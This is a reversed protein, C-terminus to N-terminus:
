HLIRDDDSAERLAAARMRLRRALVDDDIGAALSELELAALEPQGLREHLVARDRHEVVLQPSVLLIRESWRLADEFREEALALQKLNNFMRLLADLASAAQLHQPGMAVEDGLVRQLTQECEGHSILRGAFPDVLLAAGADRADAAAARVRVLFHGPFNVGECDLGLRSGLEVYLVALTIPIGRGSALVQDIRSNAEEDYRSREGAFGRVDKLYASLAELQLRCPAGTDVFTRAQAEMEDFQGRIREPDLDPRDCAAVLLAADLLTAEEARAGFDRLCQRLEAETM